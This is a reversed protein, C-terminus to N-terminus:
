LMRKVIIYMFCFKDLTKQNKKMKKIYITEPLLIINRDM